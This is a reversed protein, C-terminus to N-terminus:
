HAPQIADIANRPMGRAKGHMRVAEILAEDQLNGHGPIADPCRLVIMRKAADRDIGCAILYLWLITPSRNQGATCHIYLKSDTACLADHIADLCRIATADPIRQLDAVPIDVVSQFGAGRVEALTPADGVNLIHTVGQETLHCCREPTTFRGIAVRRTIWYIGQELGQWFSLQMKTLRGHSIPLKDPATLM